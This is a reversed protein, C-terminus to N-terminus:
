EGGAQRTRREIDADVYQLNDMTESALKAINAVAIGYGALEDQAVGEVNVHQIIGGLGILGFLCQEVVNSLSERLPMLQDDEVPLRRTKGCGSGVMMGLKYVGGFAQDGSVDVRGQRDTMLNNLNTKIIHM